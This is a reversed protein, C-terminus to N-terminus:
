AAASITASRARAYPNLSTAIRSNRNMTPTMENRIFTPLVIVRVYLLPKGSTGLSDQLQYYQAERRMLVRVKAFWGTERM